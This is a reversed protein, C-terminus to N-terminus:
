LSRNDQYKGGSRKGKNFDRVFTFPMAITFSLLWVVMSHPLSYRYTGTNHICAWTLPSSSWQFRHSFLLCLNWSKWCSIPNPTVGFCVHPGGWICMINMTKYFTKNCNWQLLHSKQYCNYLGSIILKLTVRVNRKILVGWIFSLGWPFSWLACCAYCM